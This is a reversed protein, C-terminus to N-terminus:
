GDVVYIYKSTHTSNYPVYGLTHAKNTQELVFSVNSNGLNVRMNVLELLNTLSHWKIDSSICVCLLKM